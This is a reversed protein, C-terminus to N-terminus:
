REVWLVCDGDGEGGAESGAVDAGEVLVAVGALGKDFNGAFGRGDFGDAAGVTDFHSAEANM